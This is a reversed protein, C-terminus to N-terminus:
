QFQQCRRPIPTTVHLSLLIGIEHLIYPSSLRRLHGPVGNQPHLTFNYWLLVYQRFESHERNIIAIRAELRESLQIEDVVSLNSDKAPLLISKIRISYIQIGDLKRIMQM